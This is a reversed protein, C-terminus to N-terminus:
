HNPRENDVLILDFNSSVRTGASEVQYAIIDIDTKEEFRLPVTFNYRYNNQYVETLHKIRFARGFERVYLRCQADKGKNVSFDLSSMYATFGAPVTYTAMLTQALGADVQAVVVGTGSVTRATVTGVNIGGTDYEMRYIRRFTNVTTVATQGSMQVSELLPEYNDGLGELLVVDTDGANTSIIYLTQPTDLASWPYLGGASWISEPDTTSSVSFNAGFKQVSSYYSVDGQAIALPDHQYLLKSWTTM